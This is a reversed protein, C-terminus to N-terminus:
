DHWVAAGGQGKAWLLWAEFKAKLAAKAADLSACDGNGPQLQPPIYPGTLTWFWVGRGGSVPKLMIRGALRGAIAVTYDGAAAQRLMLPLGELTEPDISAPM